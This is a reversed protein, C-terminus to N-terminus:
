GRIFPHVLAEKPTVRRAPDLMLCKDLLDIFSTLLKMEDDKLKVSAPPMLRARLDRVAGQIHVKRTVNAGTVRDTEISEFGGMEDFYLEGFKAKKIMKSNFRGKLEMMLLLMQNNSRGPFLIKGTYLEYLTCGVSWMDLTTDYPVGLIIEPARYFRSVLYPTIDNESADSASGLDCLKLVTKQENVLINDPKIDAHMVNTKKLLSLSLFLQHAYARVARINLGVDKGFKKVVDRLNMSMSEFVLCLHGRHEFTRELRVIHKKDDPDAQRLKHLIQVEKLGARYMSEQSRIIKIAVERGGEGADQLVRARVVNAFMGKGLSSFVQYRGGDLQEGLIIQYYGEPDSAYDLTTTILAPAVVPKVVKKAKKKKGDATVIAFMDDVDEEEEAEEITEIPSDKFVLKQEDERRDLSPDYDAASIQLGTEDRGPAKTHVDEEDKALEFMDPGPEPSASERKRTTVNETTSNGLISGSDGPACPSSHPKSQPDSMSSVFPPPQVASSPGPSPSVGQTSVSAVGTYKALIAQRRARREKRLVEDKDPTNLELDIEPEPQPSRPPELRQPPPSASSPQSRSPYVSPTVSCLRPSPRPTIEGEEKDSDPRVQITTVHGNSPVSSPKSHSAPTRRRSDDRRDDERRRYDKERDHERHRERDRDRGDRRDREKAYDSVRRTDRERTWDREKSGRDYRDESDKGRRDRPSPLHVDRWSRGEDRGRHRKYSSPSEPGHHHGEWSRKSGASVNTM